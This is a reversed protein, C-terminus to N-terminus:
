AKFLSLGALDCRNMGLNPIDIGLNHYDCRKANRLVLICAM